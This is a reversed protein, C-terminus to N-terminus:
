TAVLCEYLRCISRQRNQLVSGLVGLPRSMPADLFQAELESLIGIKMLNAFVEFYNLVPAPPVAGGEAAYADLFEEWSWLADAAGRVYALDEAPNTIRAFEWDLVATITGNHQLINHPAYDGHVLTRPGETIEVNRRLWHVAYEILPDRNTLRDWSASRHSIDALVQETTTTAHGRVHGLQDNPISHARALQEAVQRCLAKSRMPPIFGFPEGENWEVAMFGQSNEPAQHVFLPRPVAVGGADLAKITAFEDAVPTGAWDVGIDVRIIIKQPIGIGGTTDALITQKSLGGVIPILQTVRFEKEEPCHQRVAAELTEGTISNATQPATTPADNTELELHDCYASWAGENAEGEVKLAQTHLAMLEPDAGTGFPLERIIRAVLASATHRECIEPTTLFASVEAFLAGHSPEDLFPLYRGLLAAHSRGAVANLARGVGYDVALSALIARGVHESKKGQFWDAADVPFLRKLARLRKEPEIM